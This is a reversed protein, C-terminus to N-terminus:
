GDIRWWTWESSPAGVPIRLVRAGSDGDYVLLVCEGGRVIWEVARDAAYEAALEITSDVYVNCSQILEPEDDLYTIMVLGGPCQGPEISEAIM